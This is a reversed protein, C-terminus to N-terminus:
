IDEANKCYVLLHKAIEKLDAKSYRDAAYEDPCGENFAKQFPNTKYTVTAKILMTAVDIPELPLEQKNMQVEELEAKLCDIHAQMENIQCNQKDMASKLSEEAHLCFLIHNRNLEKALAVGVAVGNFCAVDESHNICDEARKIEMDFFHEIENM